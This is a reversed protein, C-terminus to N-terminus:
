RDAETPFYTGSFDFREPKDAHRVGEYLASTLRNLGHKLKERLYVDDDHRDLLLEASKALYEAAALLHYAARGQWSHVGNAYAAAEGIRSQGTYARILAKGTAEFDEAAALGSQQFTLLYHYITNLTPDSLRALRIHAGNHRPSGACELCTDMLANMLDVVPTDEAHLAFDADDRVTDPIIRRRIDTYIANDYAAHYRALAQQHTTNM